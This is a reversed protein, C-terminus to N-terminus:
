VLIEVAKPDDKTCMEGTKENILRIQLTPDFMFRQGQASVTRTVALWIPFATRIPYVHAGLPQNDDCGLYVATTITPTSGIYWCTRSDNTTGTKSIAEGTFWQDTFFKRVRQLGHMLVKAVKSVVYTSLVRESVMDAKYIKAGWRDKVWTICHPEVYMGNNAFINFTAAAQILTSDICGLALSPYPFYPGPLHCRKAVDIVKQVGTELLTKITVINNSHSLAFARTIPGNFKKNWNNPSWVIDAQEVQIPEDMVVEDFDMGRELAAAYVLPKFISGLQRRAQVARNFPSALFDIGGVLAKIEGTQVDLSILGGDIPKGLKQRLQMVQQQFEQEACQQLSTNITTQITLGGSYLAIKGVKKELFQRLMEKVYAGSMSQDTNEIKVPKKVAQHYEQESILDRKRMVNLIVNRRHESSLPHVLPCYNAPSRIIGALTAAQDLSVETISTNWFRQAAAEVGYIGYGFCVHNLYIELIQHKTFQQEIIMAYVQEKIKRSFTKAHDCFLLKVLQQTITSAGQVKRGHYINVLISRIIGRWSIGSHSFFQWDEASLFADIVHAPLLALPVPDRRDLAFRTLENGADDLVLSPRGPNYTEFASVDIWSSTGLFFVAGALACAGLFIITLLLAFIRVTNRQHVYM